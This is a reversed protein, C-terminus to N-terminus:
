GQNRYCSAVLLIEVGEPPSALGDCPVGLIYDAPVWNYVQTSLPEGCEGGGPSSGPGSSLSVLASVMLGGRRGGTCKLHNFPVFALDIKIVKKKTQCITNYYSLHKLDM